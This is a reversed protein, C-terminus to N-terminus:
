PGPSATAVLPGAAARRAPRLLASRPTVPRTASATASARVSRAPGAASATATVRAPRALRAATRRAAAPRAATAASAAATAGALAGAASGPVVSVAGAGGQGAGAPPAVPVDGTVSGHQVLFSDVAPTIKPGSDQEGGVFFAVAGVAAMVSAALGAAMWRAAAAYVARPRWPRPMAANEGATAMAMLRGTLATDVMAEGLSHMRQKLARLTVAEQRCADCQALHALVRDREAAGLEGDILASLRQGLHSM